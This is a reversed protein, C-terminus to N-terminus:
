ARGNAITKGNLAEIYTVTGATERRCLRQIDVVDRHLGRLTVVPDGRISPDLSIWTVGRKGAM